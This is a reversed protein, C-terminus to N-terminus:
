GRLMNRMRPITSISGIFLMWLRSPRLRCRRLRWPVSSFLGGPEPLASSLFSLLIEQHDQRSTSVQPNAPEVPFNFGGFCDCIELIGRGGMCTQAPKAPCGAPAREMGGVDSCFCPQQSTDPSLSKPKKQTFFGTWRIHSRM